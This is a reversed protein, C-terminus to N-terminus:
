NKERRKLFLKDREKWRAQKETEKRKKKREKKEEKKRKSRARNLKFDLRTLSTLIEQLNEAEFTPGFSIVIKIHELREDATRKRLGAYKEKPSYEKHGPLQVFRM